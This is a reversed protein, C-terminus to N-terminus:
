MLWAGDLFICTSVIFSPLRRRGQSYQFRLGLSLVEDDPRLPVYFWIPSQRLQLPRLREFTKIALPSERTHAHMSLVGHPSSFVTLGICKKLDISVFHSVSFLDTHLALEPSPGESDIIM